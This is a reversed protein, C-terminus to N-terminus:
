IAQDVRQMTEASLRGWYQAVQREDITRIQNLLVLANHHLGGEPAQVEVQV